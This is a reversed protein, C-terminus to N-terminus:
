VLVIREKGFALTVRTGKEPASAIAFSAGNAEALAKALPLGLGLGANQAKGNRRGVTAKDDAAQEAEMGPGTDAISILLATEPTYDASLTVKDGARSFKIANALLNLLIQKVSLEDAVVRPLRPQYQAALEIGARMALPRTVTLCSEIVSVADVDSFTQRPVWTTTGGQLIGDVVRLAHQASEYVNGAYIRYRETGLPGFHEDKLIEAYSIVASIPTRLEHALRAHLAPAVQPCAEPGIAHSIAPSPAVDQLVQVRVSTSPARPVPQIDCFRTIAGLPTWFTLIEQARGLLPGDVARRLRRLAPMASDIGIPQAIQDKHRGWFSWGSANAHVLAGASIDIIFAPRAHPLQDPGFLDEAPIAPPPRM